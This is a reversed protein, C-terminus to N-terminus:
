PKCVGCPEYGNDLLWEKTGNFTEKNEDSMSEVYRCTDLHYKKSEVNLIYIIGDSNETYEKEQETVVVQEGSLWSEGTSYDIEVGPQVNYAFVNFQIGKGNDEVSYGEMLVGDAVLNDGTFIPTVRYLVHNETEKVYEAVMNEYPLMGDINLYRTGTILNQENANEGALQFGILHCRNYLYKGNVVDYKVTHWGSPKVQGIEGRDETPMIEKCINAYTVGCRGFDDLEAYDEFSNTTYDEATFFPVNNNIKYVPNGSYAEIVIGNFEIDNYVNNNLIIENTNVSPTNETVINGVNVDVTNTNNQSCATLCLTILLVLISTKRKM